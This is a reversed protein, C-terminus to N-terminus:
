VCTGGGTFVCLGSIAPHKQARQLTNPGIGGLHTWLASIPVRPALAHCPLLPRQCCSQSTSQVLWYFDPNGRSADQALGAGKGVHWPALLPTGVERERETKTLHMQKLILSRQEM